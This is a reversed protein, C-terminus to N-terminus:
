QRACEVKGEVIRCDVGRGLLEVELRRMDDNKVPELRWRQRVGELVVEGPFYVGIGVGVRCRTLYALVAAYVDSRRGTLYGSDLFKPRAVSIRLRRLNPLEGLADCAGPWAELQLMSKAEVADDVAERRYFAAYVQVDRILRWRELAVSRKFAEVTRLDWFVFKNTAYLVDVAEYYVQSCTVLLDCLNQVALQKTTPLSGYTYMWLSARLNPRKAHHQHWYAENM